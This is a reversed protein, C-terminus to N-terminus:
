AFAFLATSHSWTWLNREARYGIFSRQLEEVVCPDLAMVEGRFVDFVLRILGNLPGFSEFTTEPTDIHIEDPSGENGLSDFFPQVPQQLFVVHGM